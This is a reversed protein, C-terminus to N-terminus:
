VRNIKTKPTARVRGFGLFSIRLYAKM